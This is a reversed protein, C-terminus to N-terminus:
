IEVIEEIAKEARETRKRMNDLGLERRAATPTLGSVKFVAYKLTERVRDTSALLLKQM